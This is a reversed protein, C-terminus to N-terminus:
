LVIVIVTMLVLTFDKIECFARILFLRATSVAMSCSDVPLRMLLAASSAAPMAM